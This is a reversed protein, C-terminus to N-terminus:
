KSEPAKEEIFAPKADGKRRRVRLSKHDLHAEVDSYSVGHKALVVSAFYFVDAAEFIVHDRDNEESAELLEVAEERLKASLLDKDNFLRATYSGEPANKLRSALTGTRTHQLHSRPNLNHTHIYPPNPVLTACDRSVTQCSLM